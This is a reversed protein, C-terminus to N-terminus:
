ETPFQLSKPTDGYFTKFERIFHAQDYYGYDFFVRGWWKRPTRQMASLTQQFRIIRAFTKPNLGIYREFLRRLQRPSIFAAVEKQIFANGASHFIPHLSHLFRKDLEYNRKMMRQLLDQEIISIRQQLTEVELLKEEVEHLTNGFFDGSHLTQGTLDELNLDFFYHVCAPLFRIGIYHITGNLQIDFSQTSTISLFSEETQRCNFIIDVSGDAVIHYPYEYLLEDNSKLEWYYAIYPHLFPDPMCRAAYLLGNEAAVESPQLPQFQQHIFAITKLLM